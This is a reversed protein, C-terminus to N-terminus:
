FLEGIQKLTEKAFRPSKADINVVVGEKNILLYTPFKSVKFLQEIMAEQEEPLRYHVINEGTLDMEKIVNKWSDEPSRNAFYMFVVDYGKLKEKLGKVYKMNEKCPGCWTGWFDVYIVKGKYPKILEDFLAKADKADKLNETNKLSAAYTMGTKAVNEYFHHITELQEVMSPIVVEKRMSTLQEPKLPLHSQDMILYYSQANWLRRLTENTLLSDSSSAPKPQTAMLESAQQTLFVNLGQAKEILPKYKAQLAQQETPKSKEFVDGMEALQEMLSITEAPVDKKTRVFDLIKKFTVVVQAHDQHYGIWDRLFKSFERLGTYMWEQDLVATKRVFSLYASDLTPNERRRIDFRHQMLDFLLEYREYESQFVKFKDSVTPHQLIHTNLVAMREKYVSDCHTLYDMDGGKEGRKIDSSLRSPKYTVLENNLRANDGMFLLQKARNYYGDWGGDKDLPIFDELDCFVLTTDGAELAVHAHLRSWDMYMEQMNMIPFTLKFRGLSDFDAMYKDQEVTLINSVSVSFPITVLRSRFEQPIKERNRYYGIITASDRKFTPKAFFAKDQQPYDPYIRGMKTFKIAKNKGAQLSLLSDKGLKLKLSLHESGKSLVVSATGNKGPVVSEYDWFDNQYIAFKEFFGYEWNNTTRNIWNGIFRDSLTQASAQFAVFCCIVIWTYRIFAHTNKM